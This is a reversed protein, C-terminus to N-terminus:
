MYELHHISAKKDILPLDSPLDLNSRFAPWPCLKSLGVAGVLMDPFDYYFIGYYVVVCDRKPYDM